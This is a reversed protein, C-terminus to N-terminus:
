AAHNAETIKKLSDGRKRGLQGRFPKTAKPPARINPPRGPIDDEISKIASFPHQTRQSDPLGGQAEKVTKSENGSDASPEYQPGTDIMTLTKFANAPEDNDIKSALYPISYQVGMNKANRDISPEVKFSRSWSATGTSSDLSLQAKMIESPKAPLDGKPRVFAPANSTAGPKDSGENIKSLSRVSTHALQIRRSNGDFSKTAKPPARKKPPGSPIDVEFTKSAPFQPQTRQSGLLGGQAEKVTKSKDGSDASAEPQPGIDRAKLTKFANAPEDNDNKSALYPITYQVCKSKFSNESLSKSTKPLALKYPTGVPSNDGFSPQLQSSAIPPFRKLEASAPANSATGRKDSSDDIEDLYTARNHGLLSRFENGDLSKTSKPPARRRPIRDPSLKDTSSEVQVSRSSTMTDVSSEPQAKIFKSLTVAPSGKVKTSVPTTAAAVRKERSKVLKAKFENGDLSKSAKPSIRKRPAVAPSGDQLPVPPADDERSKALKAKFENGDLLKSAKPPARRRPSIVPSDVQLPVAPADDKRSKALKAKFENEDLSKSAKPPARRRPPDIPSDVQLPVPPADDERSKVLKTKFENEDLSKTAKPPARRRPPGGPLDEDFSKDDELPVSRALESRFENEDFSKTAKAPARRQPPGGSLHGEFSKSAQLQARNRLSGPTADEAEKVKRFMDGLFARPQYQVSRSESLKDTSSKPQEKMFRSLAAPSAGTFVPAESATGPKRPARNRGLDTRFENGDLSKTAKPPARKQPPDSRSDDEFSKSTRTPPRRRQSGSPIDEEVSAPKDPVAAAPTQEREQTAEENAPTRQPRHDASTEGLRPVEDFSNALSVSSAEESTPQLSEYGDTYDSDGALITLQRESTHPIAEGSDETQEPDEDHGLFKEKAEQRLARRRQIEERSIVRTRRYWCALAILVLAGVAAAIGIILVLSSGGGDEKGQTPIPTPTPADADIDVQGGVSLIGDFFGTGGIDNIAHPRLKDLFLKKIYTERGERFASELGNVYTAAPRYSAGLLKGVVQISGNNDVQEDVQLDLVSNGSSFASLFDVTVDTFYQQQVTNMTAGKPVGNLTIVYKAAVDRPGIYRVQVDPIQRQVSATIADAFQYLSYILEGDRLSEDHIFDVTTRLLL